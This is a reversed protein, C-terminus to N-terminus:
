DRRPRRDAVRSLALALLVLHLGVIAWTGWPPVVLNALWGILFAAAPAVPILPILSPGDCLRKGVYWNSLKVGAVLLGWFAFLFALLIGNPTAVSM